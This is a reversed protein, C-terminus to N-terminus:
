AGETGPVTLQRESEPIKGSELIERTDSRKVIRTDKAYDIVGSCRVLRFEKGAGIKEAASAIEAELQGLDTKAQRAAQAFLEGKVSLNRVNEAMKEGLELIDEKCLLCPLLQTFDWIKPAPFKVKNKGKLAKMEKKVLPGIKKM